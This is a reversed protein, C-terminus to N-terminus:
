LTNKVLGFNHASTCIKLQLKTENTVAVKIRDGSKDVTMWTSVKIFEVIKYVSILVLLM